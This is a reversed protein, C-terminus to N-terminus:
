DRHHTLFGEQSQRDASLSASPNDVGTHYFLASSYKYEEPLSYVFLLPLRLPTQCLWGRHIFCSCCDFIM